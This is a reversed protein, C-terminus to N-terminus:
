NRQLCINKDPLFVELNNSDCEYKVLAVAASSRRCRDFIFTSISFIKSFLLITSTPKTVGLVPSFHKVPILAIVLHCWHCDHLGLLCRHFWVAGFCLCFAVFSPQDVAIVSSLRILLGLVSRYCVVCFMVHTCLKQIGQQNFHMQVSKDDSDVTVSDVQLKSWHGYDALMIVGQNGHYLFLPVVLNSSMVRTHDSPIGLSLPVSRCWIYWLQHPIERSSFM